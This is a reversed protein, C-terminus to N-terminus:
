PTPIPVPAPEATRVLLELAEVVKTEVTLDRYRYYPGGGERFLYNPASAGTVRCSVVNGNLTNDADLITRVMRVYTRLDEGTDDKRNQKVLVRLAFTYTTNQGAGIYAYPANEQNAISGETIVVGHDVGANLMEYSVLAVNKDNYYDPYEKLTAAIQLMIASENNITM